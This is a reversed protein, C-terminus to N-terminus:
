AILTKQRISALEEDLLDIFQKLPAPLRKKPWIAVFDVRIEDPVLRHFRVKDARMNCASAPIIAVGEGAEVTSLVSSMNNLENRFRPSFGSDNCARVILDFVEPSSSRKFTLFRDSALDALRIPERELSMSAPVAAVLPESFLLRMEYEPRRQISPQRTFAIDIEGRDLLATHGSPVDEELRLAIGPHKTKYKQILNPLFSASAFGIFGIGLSGIEGRSTRQAIQISREAQALTKRAEEYFAEGEPTLQSVRRQHSFLPVGLEFELDAVAHSLSSQSTHLHRSAQRYGKWHVVATFYRLHRLEM